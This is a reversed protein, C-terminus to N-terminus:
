MSTVEAQLIAIALCRELFIFITLFSFAGTARSYVILMWLFMWPRYAEREGERERGRKYDLRWHFIKKHHGENRELEKLFRAGLAMFTMRSNALFVMPVESTMRSADTLWCTQALPM